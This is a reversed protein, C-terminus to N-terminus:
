DLQSLEKAMHGRELPKPGFKGLLGFLSKVFPYHPKDEIPGLQNSLHKSRRGYFIWDYVFTNCVHNKKKQERIKLTESV